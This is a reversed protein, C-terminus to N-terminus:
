AGGSSAVLRLAQRIDGTSYPKAITHTSRYDPAIGDLGYGTAFFFPIGRARLVDAVPFSKAEGLNVDLMAADLAEHRALTLADELRFAPGVPRHGLDDILAEALLAVMMEDEVILVRLGAKM